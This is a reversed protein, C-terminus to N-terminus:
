TSRPRPRRKEGSPRHLSVPLHRAYRAFDGDTTFIPSETRHAVACLLLDIAGGAVGRARLHNYFRAAEDYDAIGIALCDFGALHGQLREFMETDRVGSLLEQRIPGVIVASGEEVLRRWEAVLARQELGLRRAPRRLALSWITTDVLVTV